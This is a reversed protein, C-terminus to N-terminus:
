GFIVDPRDEHFQPMQRVMGQRLQDGLEDLRVQVGAVRQQVAATRQRADNADVHGGRRLSARGTRLWRMLIKDNETSFPLRVM